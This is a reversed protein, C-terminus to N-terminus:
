EATKIKMGNPLLPAYPEKGGGVLHFTATNGKAPIVEHGQLGPLNPMRTHPKWALITIKQGKQPGAGKAIDQVEVTITYITDKHTGPHTEIKSKEVSTTVDLVKGTVIHTAEKQMKEDSMPAKAAHSIAATLFVVVAIILASPNM